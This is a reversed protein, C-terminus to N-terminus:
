LITDRVPGEKLSTYDNFLPSIFVPGIFVVIVLFFFSIFGGWIWWNEKVKRMATYLLVMLISGFFIGLGLGIMEEGMWSGFTLNSLDYQHERYFSEYYNLPFSLIYAVVFYMSLYIANAINM